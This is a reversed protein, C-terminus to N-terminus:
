QSAIVHYKGSDLLFVNHTTVQYESQGAPQSKGGNTMVPVADRMRDSKMNGDAQVRRGNLVVTRYGSPLWLEAESNGPVSVELEMRDSENSIRCYVPGRLTPVVVEAQGLPGPHPAIRFRAYAPELPEIGFLKRPIINAPATGWAHNWTLNPKYYEDWAETTMSSGARIMNMWSRKGDATMLALAHDAAGGAYLAELLYQAGYVSCAMGRSKIFETVGAMHEDRVMGFALPFLNAHLSAHDTGIGDTFLGRGEDFFARYFSQKHRESRAAFFEQDAVYRATQGAMQRGSQGAPLVAAHGAKQGAEQGSAIGAGQGTRNEATLDVVQESTYEAPQECTYEAPQSLVGAIRGMLVLARNHFANVVSNYDTFVFEDTEGGKVPSQNSRPAQGDPPGQPWDVIDRLSARAPLNISDLFARTMRGTRTSILGNEDTLAVLTKRRLMEYYAALFERDGTQLYYEWAMMVVHM